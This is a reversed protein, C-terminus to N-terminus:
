DTVAIDITAYIIKEKIGYFKLGISM